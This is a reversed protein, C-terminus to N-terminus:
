SCNGNIKEIQKSLQELSDLLCCAGAAKLEESAGLGYTVGCPVAGAATACKMDTVGDGVMISESAKVGLRECASLLARPDPKLAPFDEAGMIADFFNGAGLGNIMKEAFKGLKNTVVAKRYHKLMNLGEIVGTYLKTTDLCHEWYYGRFMEMLHNLTENDEIGLSSKLTERLGYGVHRRVQELSLPPRDLKALVYNVADAIDQFSDALTGDLDFMVAKIIPM